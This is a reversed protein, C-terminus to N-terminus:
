FLYVYLATNYILQYSTISSGESAAQIRAPGVDFSLGFRRTFPYELGAFGEVIVADGNLADVGQFMAYGGEAGLLAKFPGVNFPNWYLRGSYVQIGPEVAVKAEVDWSDGLALRARLDPYGLGLSWRGLGAPAEAPPAPSGTAGPAAPAAERARASVPTVGDVRVQVLGPSPGGDDDSDDPSPVASPLGAVRLIGEAPFGMTLLSAKVELARGFSQRNDGSKAAASDAYGVITIRATPNQGLQRIFRDLLAKGDGNLQVSGVDFAAGVALDLGAPAGGADVLVAPSAALGAAALCGCLALLVRMSSVVARGRM